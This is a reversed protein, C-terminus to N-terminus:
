LAIPSKLTCQVAALITMRNLFSLLPTYKQPTQQQQYLEDKSEEYYPIHQQLQQDQQVIATGVDKDSDLKEASLTETPQARRRHRIILFVAFAIVILSGVVGGIIAGIPAKSSIDDSDDYTPLQSKVLGPGNWVRAATDFTNFVAKGSASPNYVVIRSGSYSAVMSTSFPLVNSLAGVHRLKLDRSPNISYVLTTGDSARDLIYGVNNVTVPIANQTLSIGNMNVNQPNALTLVRDETERAPNGVASYAVGSGSVDFVVNFGQSPPNPKATFTGISLLPKETPYLSLISDRFGRLTSQDASLRVGTWSSGTSNMRSGLFANFWSIGDVSASQSFLKPSTFTNNRFLVGDAVTGNPYVNTSWTDPGFQQVLIPSNPDNRSNGFPFCAKQAQASWRQREIRTAIFRVSPTDISTLDVIYADLRGNNSPSVGVLWIESSTTTPAICSNEYSPVASM